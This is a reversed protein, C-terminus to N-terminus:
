IRSLKLTNSKGRESIPMSAINVLFDGTMLDGNECLISKIDEITKDTSLFKDYFIGEV